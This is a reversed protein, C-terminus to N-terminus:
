NWHINCPQMLLYSLSRSIFGVLWSPHLVARKNSAVTASSRNGFPTSISKRISSFEQVNYQRHQRCRYLWAWRWRYCAIWITIRRLYSGVTPIPRSWHSEPLRRFLANEKDTHTGPTAVWPLVEPLNSNQVSIKQLPRTGSAFAWYRNQVPTGTSRLEPMLGAEAPIGPGPSIIKM